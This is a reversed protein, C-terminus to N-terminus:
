GRDMREEFAIVLEVNKDIADTIINFSDAFRTVIDKQKDLSLKVGNAMEILYKIQQESEKFASESELVMDGLRNIIVSLIQVMKDLGEIEGRVSDYFACLESAINSYDSSLSQMEEVIAELGIFDGPIRSAEIKGYLSLVRSQDALDDIGEVLRGLEKSASYLNEQINLVEIM